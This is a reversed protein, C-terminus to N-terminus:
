SLRPEVAQKTETLERELQAERIAPALDEVALPENAVPLKRTYEELQRHASEEM